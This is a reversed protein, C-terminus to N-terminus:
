SPLLLDFLGIVIDVFSETINKREQCYSYRLMHIHLRQSHLCGTLPTSQDMQM